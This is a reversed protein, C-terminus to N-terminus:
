RLELDAYLPVHDSALTRVTAVRLLRWHRSFLIHDVRRVPHVSPFTPPTGDPASLTGLIPALDEGGCNLDGLLVLPLDVPLARALEHLQVARTRRDLSLHTVAVRFVADPTEMETVLCGRAEFRKSLRVDAVIRQATRSLLANGYESPGRLVNAQFAAHMGLWEGIRAPQDFVGPWRYAENIGVVDPSVSAIARAVRGISVMGEVGQAHHINYTLFRVVGDAVRVGDEGERNARL